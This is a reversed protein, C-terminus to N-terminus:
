RHLYPMCKDLVASEQRSLKSTNLKALFEEAPIEFKVAAGIAEIFKDIRHEILLDDIGENVKQRVEKLTLTHGSKKFEDRFYEFTLFAPDVQGDGVLEGIGEIVVPKAVEPTMGSRYVKLARDTEGGKLLSEFKHKTSHVTIM